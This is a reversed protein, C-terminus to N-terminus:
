CDKEIRTMFWELVIARLAAAPIKEVEKDLVFSEVDRFPVVIEGSDTRFQFAKTKFMQVLEGM